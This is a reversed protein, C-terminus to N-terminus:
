APEVQPDGIVVMGDWLMREGRRTKYVGEGDLFAEGRGRARFRIEGDIVISFDSGRAVLRGDFNEFDYTPQGDDVRNAADGSGLRLRLDGAHDVISVDGNVNAVLRGAMHLDATGTGRARLAGRGEVTPDDPAPEASATAPVIAIAAMALAAIALLLVGIRSRPKAARRSASSNHSTTM